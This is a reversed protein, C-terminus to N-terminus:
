QITLSKAVRNKAISRALIAEAADLNLHMLIVAAKAWDPCLPRSKRLIWKNLHTALSNVYQKHSSM